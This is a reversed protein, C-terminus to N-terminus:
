KFNISNIINRVKNGGLISDLSKYKMDPLFSNKRSGESEKRGKQTQQKEIDRVSRKLEEEM